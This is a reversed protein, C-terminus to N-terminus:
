QWHYLPHSPHIERVNQHPYAVRKKLGQGKLKLGFFCLYICIKCYGKESVSSNGSRAM